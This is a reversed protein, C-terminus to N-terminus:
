NLEELKEIRSRTTLTISEKRNILRHELDESHKLIHKLVSATFTKPNKNFNSKSM